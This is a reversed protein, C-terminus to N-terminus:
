CEAKNVRDNAPPLRVGAEFDVFMVKALWGQQEYKARCGATNSEKTQVESDKRGCPPCERRNCGGATVLVPHPAISALGEQSRTRGLTAGVERSERQGFVSAQNKRILAGDRMRRLLVAHTAQKVKGHSGERVQPHKDANTTKEYKKQDEAQEEGQKNEQFPSVKKREDNNIPKVEPRCEEMMEAEEKTEHGDMINKGGLGMGKGIVNEEVLEDIRAEEVLEDIRVEEVLEDIRAEEVLEDIRAEEVLEDIRAKEVLEDIKGEEALEDIRAEKVLEDIIVEEVLEEIRAEEVLEGIEAEEVLEGIEAEEVLEDIRAKEVLEDIKGEEALEDIRAEKVLEDIIVKEVLEEIRAEEVLEGIEAEEVLEGIEAEEVLEGIEAEEVLEGIEVEEVLEGIEVEEVLEGIEAEKELENIEAEECLEDFGAEVVMDHLQSDLLYLKQLRRFELNELNQAAQKAHALLDLIIHDPESLQVFEHGVLDQSSLREKVDKRLCKQLFDEFIDSWPGPQLTPAPSQAIHYLAAMANLNFWPPRMEALEICLVGLSWIDALCDYSGLEMALVVEPAMWYPTGVFSRAPCTLSVSGFDTLKVQGEPSLMINTAKVDRHIIGHNHLYHLGSLTGLVVASIEAEQLPQRCAEIIDAASALCFEMVVWVTHEHLFAAHLSTLNPHRLTYLCRVEKEVEQWKEGTLRGECNLKKVAVAECTDAHRAFYVTGFSGRGIEQLGYYIEEPNEPQFLTSSLPIKLTSGSPPLPEPM